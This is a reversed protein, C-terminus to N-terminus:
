QSLGGRTVELERGIAVFILDFGKAFGRRASYHSDARILRSPQGFCSIRGPQRALRCVSRRSIEPTLPNVRSVWAHRM